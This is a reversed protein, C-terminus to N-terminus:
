YGHIRLKDKGLKQQWKNKKSDSTANLPYFFPSLFFVHALFVVNKSSILLLFLSPYSYLFASISGESLLANENKFNNTLFFVNVETLSLCTWFWDLVPLTFVESEVESIM